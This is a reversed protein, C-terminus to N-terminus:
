QDKSNCSEEKNSYKVLLEFLTKLDSDDMTTTIYGSFNLKPLYTMSNLSVNSKIHFNPELAEEIQDETLSIDEFRALLEERTM